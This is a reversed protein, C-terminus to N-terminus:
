VITKDPANKISKIKRKGKYFKKLASIAIERDIYNDKYRKISDIKETGDEFTVLFRYEDKM